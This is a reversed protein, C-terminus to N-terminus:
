KKKFIKYFRIRKDLEQISYYFSFLILICGIVISLPQSIFKMIFFCVIAIAFQYLFIKRSKNEISFKYKKFAILYMQLFYLFYGFLFSLGIGDLGWYKYGIVNLLLIYVNATLENLFFTKSDKKALFSYSISWSVTKFFMGLAAWQIMENVLSFQDSYFLAVIWKIFVFFVMLIPAIILLAIELQKNIVGNMETNNAAVGSLRPFYDTSMATFILGVYTNIIAFGASYLGVEELGGQRTIFIRVLYSALLAVIGSLSILLGMKLMDCGEAFTEKASLKVEVVNIKRAFLFSSLFTIISSAIISIIIGDLRFVYYLPISLLLGLASGVVNAKALDKLRRTGQLLINQGVTLQTFLLSISLYCFGITYSDNDFTMVSLGKSGFLLVFAGFLGTIWVWRRLTIITVALKKEQQSFYAESVNRIASTGLGFNTTSTVLSVTSTILGFLGFGAPGLLVAIVKSKILSIIINFVQVGGFLSTAKVIQKYSNQNKEM